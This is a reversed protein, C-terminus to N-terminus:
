LRRYFVNFRRFNIISSYFLNCLVSLRKKDLYRTALKKRAPSVWNAKLAIRYSAKTLKRLQPVPERSPTSIFSELIWFGYEKLCLEFWINNRWATFKMRIQLKKRDDAIEINSIGRFNRCWIRKSTHVLEFKSRFHSIKVCAAGSTFRVGWRCLVSFQESFNLIPYAVHPKIIPTSLRILSM